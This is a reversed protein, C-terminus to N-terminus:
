RAIRDYTNIIVYVQQTVGGPGCDRRVTDVPEEVSLRHRGDRLPMVAEHANVVFRQGSARQDAFKDDFTSGHVVVSVKQAAEGLSECLRNFHV